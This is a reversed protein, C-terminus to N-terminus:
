QRYFYGSPPAAESIKDIRLIVGSRRNNDNGVNGVDIHAIVHIWQHEKVLSFDNKSSSSIEGVFGFPSMDLICCSMFHRAVYFQNSGLSRSKSVFGNVIIKYGKYRNVNHDIEDYWAGFDDNSVSITSSAQNLGRFNKYGQFDKIAIARGGAYKDFGFNAYDRNQLPIVILLAPICIAVLIRFSERSSVKCVNFLACFALLILMISAIILYPFVRPTTLFTYSGSFASWAISASLFSLSLCLVIRSFLPNRLSSNQTIKSM